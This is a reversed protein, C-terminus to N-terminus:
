AILKQPQKFLVQGSCSDTEKELCGHKIGGVTTISTVRIVNLKCLASGDSFNLQVSIDTVLSRKIVGFEISATGDSESVSYSENLFEIM